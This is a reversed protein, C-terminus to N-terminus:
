KLTLSEGTRLGYQNCISSFTSRGDSLEMIDVIAHESTIWYVDPAIHDQPQDDSVDLRERPLSSTPTASLDPGRSDTTDGAFKEKRLNSQNVQLVTAGTDIVCIAGEQSLIRAKYCRGSTTGHKIKSKDIQWFYVRGGSRFFLVERHFFDLQL